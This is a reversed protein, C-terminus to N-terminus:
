MNFFIKRIKSCYEEEEIAIKLILQEVKKFDVSFKHLDSFYLHDTIPEFLVLSYYLFIVTIYIEDILYEPNNERIIESIQILFLENEFNDTCCMNLKKFEKKNYFKNFIIDYFKQEISLFIKKNICIM